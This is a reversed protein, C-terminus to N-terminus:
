AQHSLLTLAVTECLHDMVVWPRHEEQQQAGILYGPHSAMQVIQGSQVLLAVSLSGVM